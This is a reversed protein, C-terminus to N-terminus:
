CFNEEYVDIIREHKLTRQNIGFSLHNFISDDLLHYAANRFNLHKEVFDFIKFVMTFILLNVLLFM